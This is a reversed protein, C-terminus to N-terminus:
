PAEELLAAVTPAVWTGVDGPEVPVVDVERRSSGDLRPRLGVWGADTALWSVQGVGVSSGARGLVLCTLSGATRHLLEAALEEEQPTPTAQGDPRPLLDDLLTLPLRGAPAADTDVPEEPFGPGVVASADPVARELEAGLRVDPGLSLELRGDPLTLVGALLGSAVAFWGSRAGGRGTVDLRVTLVPRLLVELNVAVAPVPEAPGTESPLLVRRGTLSAVAGAREEATVSPAAFGPPLDGSRGEVLVAWEARTVTLRRPPAATLRAGRGSRVSIGGAGATM